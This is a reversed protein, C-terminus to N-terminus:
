LYSPRLADILATLCPAGRALELQGRCRVHISTGLTLGDEAWDRASVIVVPIERTRENARMQAIVQRGSLKPMLLDLFVIDPVADNIIELARFGDYAKLIRYPHPLLTLLRELLRVADPEDDVLLVTIEGNPDIKRMVATVMESEIPKVLYSLVGEPHGRGATDPLACSIIPIDVATQALQECVREVAEPKTVIAWPHLDKILSPVETEDPLGVIRYGEMHRALMRVIDPEDHVVLCVPTMTHPRADTERTSVTIPLTGPLPVSFCFTTGGPGVDKVWIEGGHLEVLHKSITLGLGSGKAEEGEGRRVQHFEQFLAPMEEAAIGPGTDQVSVVLHDGEQATQVTIGGTETFRVANTLLNLLAQRLRLPDAVLWPLDGATRVHLYLGKREALPRVIGVVKNVVDEALDIREKFLPLRQAEIQSLDLVDDVLASLHQTTRYVTYLDARYAKPLPEGYSEPSLTMLRSFGLILNLPGRLEHSVTAVFRAKLARAEEAERRAIILENNMREVRYTAEELARVVRYLEGRRAQVEALAERAHTWGTLAWEISTKIPRTTLWACVCILYFPIAVEATHWILPMTGMTIYDIAMKTGLMITAVVLAERTGLLANAMIIILPVFMLSLSLPFVAVALGYALIMSLLLLWCALGYHKQRLKHAIYAALPLLLIPLDHAGLDTYTVAVRVYWLWAIVLTFWLFTTLLGRRLADGEAQLDSESQTHITGSDVM